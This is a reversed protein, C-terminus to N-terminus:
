GTEIPLDPDTAWESMSNDYVAVDDHGLQYLLFADLTAYIGGGCYCIARRAPDAGAEAFARAIEDPPLLEALGPGALHAAPVNVSGPVRGPRGYRANEGSHDKPSLANLTCTGADGIAALVEDRGVFLGPRERLTLTGAPYANAGTEVARGEALWQAYGGDLVAANDFGLARLMWWFRTAWPLATRSYLVVRTGDGIGHRGFAAALTEAPPMTFGFRGGRASFDGQLDLFAAGPIHGQEYDARGSVIRYPAKGVEGAELYTTCDFIRIDPDSLCAALDQCTMIADPDRFVTATM